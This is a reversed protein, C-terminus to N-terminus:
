SWSAELHPRLAAYASDAENRDVTKLLVKGNDYVSAETGHPDKVLLIVKADLLVQFRGGALAEKLAGMDVRRQQEPVAMFGASTTCPRLLAM